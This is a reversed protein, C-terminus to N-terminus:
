RNHLPDPSSPVERNVTVFSGGDTQDTFGKTWVPTKDLLMVREKVYRAGVGGDKLISISLLILLFYRLQTRSILM